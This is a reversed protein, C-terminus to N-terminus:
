VGGVVMEEFFITPADIGFKMELDSAFICHNFMDIFNGAVTIENVPYTIEGNKIWFGCAGQSYNGTVFNLGSGLVETVYLGNKINKILTNFSEQGNEICVNNPSITDWDAANATSKMNLKRAYKTNLLFSSLIGDKVISNNCCTLGDADFPRSRLGRCVDYRDNINLRESFVKQGLKDKLFSMGKAIMAGNLAELINHLLSAAVDKHFVVPIRCSHIKRAGLKQLTKKASDTAIKEASKLDKFYITESFDFSRELNGNKEALTIISLANKTKEYQASFGDDRMLNIKTRSFRAEAGETNTIGPIQLAIDECMKTNKILMESTVDVQDYIDISTGGKYLEFTNARLNMSEKPSNKVAYFIKEMFDDNKLEDVNDTSVVISRDDIFIRVSVGLIDSRELKEVKMFRSTASLTTNEKFVIDVGTAGIKKIKRIIDSLYDKINEM